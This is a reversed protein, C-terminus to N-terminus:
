FGELWYNAMVAFDAFNVRGDGGPLPSIDASCVPLGTKLWQETFDLLENFSNTIGWQNAFVAFDAFDVIGDGGPPALDAPIEEVLWQECLEALDYFDVGDPCVIDGPLIQWKLKPYNVVECIHWVDNFDWGVFSAQQKMQMDTLPTGAGNAPGSTILFYSHSISGGGNYNRGVLGGVYGSGNVVGTSYCNSINGYNTLGVLGGVHVEGTVDGKSYCNSISGEVVIGILGGTNYSNSGSTVNSTSFCNSVSSGTSGGVLGGIYYSGGGGNVTGTSHCNSINGSWNAGVLGGLHSPNDGGFIDGESYCNIISGDDNEGVMGGLNSGGTIFSTSYCDSVSGGSNWGVLGGIYFSDYGGTISVNELGINKIKGVSIHGFLGLFDNGAGNTNITMNAIKHGAGDLVGTFATGNFVGNTNDTDPAIVATSFVKNGPLNPDLDIDATLIFCKNYDNADNALTMLDAVNAIQYPTNPEGTGGSYKAFCPCAAALILFTLVVKRM